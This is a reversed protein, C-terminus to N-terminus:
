IEVRCDFCGCSMHNNLVGAAKQHQGCVDRFDRDRHQVLGEDREVLVAGEDKRRRDTVAAGIQQGASWGMRYPRFEASPTKCLVEGRGFPRTKRTM